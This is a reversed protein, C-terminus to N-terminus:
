AQSALYKLAVPDIGRGRVISLSYHPLDLGHRFQAWRRMLIGVPTGARALSALVIDHGREALVLETVRGVALALREASNRLVEDFLEQYGIDPQFEVPLSEAYHATGAQIAAEREAVDGELDLNSLDTLLWRVDEAAYSGFAPGILPRPLERGSAAPRAAALQAPDVPGLVVLLVDIGASQLAGVVGTSGRLIETDAAADTVVVVLDAAGSMQANYLFRPVEPDGEADAFSFQRRIPYAPDDVALVPSRTTSQFGVSLASQLSLQQALRLPLYMLEETGVVVVENGVGPLRAHVADVLRGAAHHLALEFGPQDRATFGHRGGDPVGAPWGIEIIAVNGPLRRRRIRHHRSRVM